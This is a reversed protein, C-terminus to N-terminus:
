REVLGVPRVLSEYGDLGVSRLGLQVSGLSMDRLRYQTVRGVRVEEEPFPADIGRMVIAYGEVNPGAPSWRLEVDSEDVRTATFADPTRPALALAAATAANLKAIRTCYKVSMNEVTDRTTHQNTVIEYPTTFRVAAFGESQFSLHDGNRGSRDGQFVPNVVLSPLYHRGIEHVFRALEQSPSDRVNGGFVNVAIQHDQKPEPADDGIIDNNLVAEINQSERKANAAEQRSGMLGQEEGAFAMFVLTKDFEYSSLVRALEMMAATGSGDDNAGPAPAEPGDIAASDYHASIIIQTQPLTKGPLVAIVNYLEAEGLRLRPDIPWSSFRVQLRPSYSQLEKFIWSRAAGIGRGPLHPDFTTNRTGFSVLTELSARIHAESVAAIIQGINPRSKNDDGGVISAPVFMEAAVLLIVCSVRAAGGM